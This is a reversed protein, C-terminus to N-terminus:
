QRGPPAYAIARAADGRGMCDPAPMGEILYWLGRSSEGVARVSAAAAFCPELMREPVLLQRGAQQALWAAADYQEADGERFRRHGFNITPRQLQLLFHEHYALLGLPRLPDAM